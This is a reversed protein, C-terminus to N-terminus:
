IFNMLFTITNKEPKILIDIFWDNQKNLCKLYVVITKFVLQTTKAIEPKKNIKQHDQLILLKINNCKNLLLWMSNCTPAHLKTFDDQLTPKNYMFKSTSCIESATWPRISSSASNQYNSSHLFTEIIYSTALYPEPIHELVAGSINSVDDLITTRLQPIEPFSLFGQVM